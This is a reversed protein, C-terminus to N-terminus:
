RAANRLAEIDTVTIQRPSTAVAGQLRLASLGRVVAARSASVVGALEAQSLGFGLEDTGDRHGDGSRRLEIQELLFRAVRRTIDGSAVDARRRDAARKDRIATRLMAMAADPHKRLFERFETGEIVQCEVAELAIVSATRGCGDDDIAEFHGIVSGTGHVACVIDVGDPTVTSVKVRGRLIVSVDDSDDGQSM